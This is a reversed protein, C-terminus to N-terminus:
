LNLLKEYPLYVINLIALALLTYLTIKMGTVRGSHKKNLVGRAYILRGSVLLIGALHILWISAHNLELFLLMLLALPVYEVTNSHATRAIILHKNNGNGYRIRHKRRNKIVNISLWVVLFTLLSAYLATIM